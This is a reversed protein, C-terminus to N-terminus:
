FIDKIWQWVSSLRALFFNANWFNETKSSATANKQSNIFMYETEGPKTEGFQEYGLKELYDPNDSNAIEDKLTQNSNEIDKIQKQYANIEGALQKKKQYIKFDAFILAVVVVLFIIGVTKFLLDNNFFERNGKKNFGAVM